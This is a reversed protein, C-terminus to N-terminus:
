GLTGARVRDAAARGAGRPPGQGAQRRAHAAQAPAARGREDDGKLGLLLRDNYDAPDYVGDTDALLTGFLACLELLRHWDAGSRALRSMEVGLIIGVHDLSVESVLRGFGPRGTASTGSRGLDEDIVLVRGAPWGLGVARDALGYQLRTSETHDAVQQVTSQRVYVVALREWHRPGVKGSHVEWPRVTPEVPTATM